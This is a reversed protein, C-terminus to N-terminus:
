DQDKLNEFLTLMANTVRDYFQPQHKCFIDAILKMDERKTKHNAPCPNFLIPFDKSANVIESERVYVFPRIVELDVRSLYTCPKFSNIRGEYLLSLLFTHVFDDNHHALAVKNAGLNKAYNNLIGRRLNACLSCPNKEKRINFVINLIDSNAVHFDVDLEQCFKRLNDFNQKGNSTDVTVACLKFPIKSYKKYTGLAKTLALSDKGGSLGIVVFDNPKILHFDTIARHMKNIIKRM